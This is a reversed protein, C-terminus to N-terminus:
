LIEKWWCGSRSLSRILARLTYVLPESFHWAGRVKRPAVRLLPNFTRHLALAASHVAGLHSRLAAETACLRRHLPGLQEAPVPAPTSWAGQLQVRKAAAGFHLLPLASPGELEGCTLVM